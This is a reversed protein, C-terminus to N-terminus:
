NDDDSDSLEILTYNINTEVNLEYNKFDNIYNYNLNLYIIKLNNPINIIKKNYRHPLYLYEISYPLNNLEKNYRSRKDFIIKKLSTPLNNLELDFNEGLELEEISDPLNEIINLNNCNLKLYIINPITIIKNFKEGLSLHTLTHPLNIEHDFRNGLILHTLYNPLIVFSNSNYTLQTINNPIEISEKGNYTLSKINTIDKLLHINDSSM